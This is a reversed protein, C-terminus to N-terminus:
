RSSRAEPVASGVACVVGSSNYGVSRPFTVSPGGKPNVNPDGTINARETGNSITSVATKVMVEDALLEPLKKEILEAKNKEPFIIQKTTM